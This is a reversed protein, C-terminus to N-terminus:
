ALIDLLTKSLEKDTKLVTANAAFDTKAQELSVLENDLSVDKGEPTDAVAINVAAKAVRAQSNFLGAAANSGIVSM